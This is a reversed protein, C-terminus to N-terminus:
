EAGGSSARLASEIRDMDAINRDALFNRQDRPYEDALKRYYIRATDFDGVDFQAMVAIAFYDFANDIVPNAPDIEKTELSRILADLAPPYLELRYLTSSLLSHLPNRYPHEPDDTLLREITARAQELSARDFANALLAAHHMQAESAALTGPYREAVSAYDVLLKPLDISIDSTPPVHDLRVLMLAIWSALNSDPDARLRARLDRRAADYSRGEGVSNNLILGIQALDHDSRSTDNLVNVFWRRAEANERLRFNLWAVDHPDSGGLSAAQRDCSVGLVALTVGLLWVPARRRM